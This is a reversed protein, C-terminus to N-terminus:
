AAVDVGAFLGAPNNEADVAPAAPVAAPADAYALSVGSVAHRAWLTSHLQEDM